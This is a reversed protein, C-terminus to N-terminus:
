GLSFLVQEWDGRVKGSAFDGCKGRSNPRRLDIDGCKGWWLLEYTNCLEWLTGLEGVCLGPDGGGEPFGIVLVYYWRNKKREKKQTQLCSAVAM